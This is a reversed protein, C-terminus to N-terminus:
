AEDSAAESQTGGLCRLTKPEEETPPENACVRLISAYDFPYPWPLSDLAEPEGFEIEEAFRVCHEYIERTIVFEEGPELGQKSM